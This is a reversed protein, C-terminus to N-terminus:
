AGTGVSNMFRLEGHFYQVAVGAEHDAVGRRFYHVLPAYDPYTELEPNVWCEITMGSSPQLSPSSVINVFDNEKFTFSSDQALLQTTGLFMLYIIYSRNWMLTGLVMTM